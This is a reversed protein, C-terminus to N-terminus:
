DVYFVDSRAAPGSKVKDTQPPDALQPSNATELKQAREIYEGALSELHGALVDDNCTRALRRCREAMERLKKADM